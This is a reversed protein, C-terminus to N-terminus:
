LTYSIIESILTNNSWPCVPCLNFIFPVNVTSFVQTAIYVM